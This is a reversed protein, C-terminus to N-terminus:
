SEWLTSLTEKAHKLGKVFSDIKKDINTYTTETSDDMWVHALQEVKGRLIQSGINASVPRM